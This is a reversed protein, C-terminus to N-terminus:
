IVSARTTVSALLPKTNLFEILQKKSAFIFLFDDDFLKQIEWKNFPIPNLNYKYLFSFEKKLEEYDDIDKFYLRDQDQFKPKDLGTGIFEIIAIEGKYLISSEGGVIVIFNGKNFQVQISM